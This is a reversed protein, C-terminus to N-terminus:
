RKDQIESPREVTRDAHTWRREDMQVLVAIGAGRRVASLWFKQAFYLVEQITTTAKARRQEGCM